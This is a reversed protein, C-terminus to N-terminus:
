GGRGGSRFDTSGLHAYGITSDARQPCELAAVDGLNDRLLTLTPISSDVSRALLIIPAM